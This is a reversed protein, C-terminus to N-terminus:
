RSQEAAQADLPVGVAIFLDPKIARLGSMDEEIGPDYALEVM